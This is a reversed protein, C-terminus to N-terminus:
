SIGSFQKGTSTVALLKQLVEDLPSVFDMMGANYIHFIADYLGHKWCLLV